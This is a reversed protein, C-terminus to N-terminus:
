GVGGYAALNWCQCAFDYLEWVRRQQTKQGAEGDGPGGVLEFLATAGNAQEAGQLGEPFGTNSGELRPRYYRELTARAIPALRCVDTLVLQVMLFREVDDVRIAASGDRIGGGGLVADVVETARLPTRVRAPLRSSGTPWVTVEEHKYTRRPVIGIGGCDECVDSWEEDEPLAPFMDRFQRETLLREGRAAHAEVLVAWTREVDQLGPAPRPRKGIVINHAGKQEARYRGLAQAYTERKGGKRFRRVPQRGNGERWDTVVELVQEAGDPGRKVVERRSAYRGGCRRCPVPGLGYSEARALQAGFGSGGAVHGAVHPDDLAWKLDIEDAAELRSAVQDTGSVVPLWPKARAGRVGVGGGDNDGIQQAAAM